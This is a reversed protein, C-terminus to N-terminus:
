WLFVAGVELLRERARTNRSMKGAARHPGVRGPAGEIGQQFTGSFAKRRPTEGFIERESLHRFVNEMVIVTSDVVIGFDVAGLSILNASTGSFVLGIIAILLALPINIATILAARWDGLFLILVVTVLGMGVLLNEIVTRTTLHVLDGRDYFPAIEMGPPLLHNARVYELRQYIAKLTADTEAGYKMLV